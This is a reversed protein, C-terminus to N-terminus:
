RRKKDCLSVVWRIADEAHSPPLALAEESEFTVYRQLKPMIFAEWAWEFAYGSDIRENGADYDEIVLIRKALSRSHRRNYLDVLADALDVSAAGGAIVNFANIASDCGGCRVVLKKTIRM